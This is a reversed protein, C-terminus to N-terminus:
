PKDSKRRPSGARPGGFGVALGSGGLHGQLIAVIGELAAVRETLAAMEDAVDYAYGIPRARPPRPKGGM